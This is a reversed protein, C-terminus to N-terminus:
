NKKYSSRIWPYDKGMREAAKQRRIHKRMGASLRERERKEEGAPRQEFIVKKNDEPLQGDGLFVLIRTLRREKSGRGVPEELWEVTEEPLRGLVKEAEQGRSIVDNRWDKGIQRITEEARKRWEEQSVVKEQGGGPSVEEVVSSDGLAEIRGM